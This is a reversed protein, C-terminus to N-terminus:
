RTSPLDGLNPAPEEFFALELNLDPDLAEIREIKEVRIRPSDTPANRVRKQLEGEDRLSMVATREAGKLGDAEVERVARFGMRAVSTETKLLFNEGVLHVRFLGM